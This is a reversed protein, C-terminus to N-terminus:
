GTNRLGGAIGNVVMASARALEPDPDGARTRRTLEVQVASLADLYPARREISRRLVPDRELLEDQGNARLLEAVTLEHETRIASWIRDREEGEPALSVYREAIALDVKALGMEANSLLTAFFPWGAAMESLLEDGESERIGALATGLGYWAPLILRAQTWAFVWPIARLDDISDGGGRSAPRSGLRLREIEGVPTVTRFFGTLGPEDHVLKRYAARSSAAMREMAGEYIALREEPPGDADGGAARLM